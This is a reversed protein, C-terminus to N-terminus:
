LKEQLKPLEAICPGCWTAWFDILVVKGKMTQVDVKSGDLATFSISPVGHGILSQRNLESQASVALKAVSSHSQEELFQHAKEKGEKKAIVDTALVVLKGAIDGSPDIECLKPFYNEMKKIRALDILDSNDMAIAFFFAMGVFIENKDSENLKSLALLRDVNQDLQDFKKRRVQLPDEPKVETQLALALVEGLHSSNPYKDAFHQAMDSLQFLLAMRQEMIEKANTSSPRSKFQQRKLVIQNWDANESKNVQASSLNIVGICLM